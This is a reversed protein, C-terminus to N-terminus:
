SGSLYDFVPNDGACNSVLKFVFGDVCFVNVDLVESFDFLQNNLSNILDM